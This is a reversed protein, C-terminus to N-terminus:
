LCALCASCLCPWISVVAMQGRVWSGAARVELDDGADGHRGASVIDRLLSLLRTHSLFGTGRFSGPSNM